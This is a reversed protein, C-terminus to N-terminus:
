PHRTRVPRPRRPPQRPRREQAPHEGQVHEVARAAAPAPPDHADVGSALAQMPQELPEPEVARRGGRGRRARRRLPSGLRVLCRARGPASSRSPDHGDGAHELRPRGVHRQVGAVRRRPQREHDRVGVRGPPTGVGKTGAAAPGPQKEGRAPNHTSRGGSLGRVTVDRGLRKVEAEGPRWRPARAPPCRPSTTPGCFPKPIRVSQAM